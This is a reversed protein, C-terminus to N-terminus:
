RGLHPRRVIRRVANFIMVLGWLFLLRALWCSISPTSTMFRSWCSHAASLRLAYGSSCCGLLNSCPLTRAVSSFYETSQAQQCFSQHISLEM